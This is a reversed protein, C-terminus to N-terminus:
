VPEREQERLQEEELDRAREAVCQEDLALVISDALGVLGDGAATTDSCNGSEIAERYCEILASLTQVRHQQEEVAKRIFPPLHPAQTMHDVNVKPM